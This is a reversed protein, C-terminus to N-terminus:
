GVPIRLDTGLQYCPQPGDPFRETDLGARYPYMGEEHADRWAHVFNSTTGVRAFERMFKARDEASLHEIWCKPDRSYQWGNFLYVLGMHNAGIKIASSGITEGRHVATGVAFGSNLVIHEYLFAWAEGDRDGEKLLIRVDFGGRGDTAPDIGIITGDAVAYIPDGPNLPIDIGGHGHQRDKSHRIPGFPSILKRKLDIDELRFPLALDTPASTRLSQHVPAGGTGANRRGGKHHQAHQEAAADHVSRREVVPDSVGVGPFAIGAALALFLCPLRNRKM